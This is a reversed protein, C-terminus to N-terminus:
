ISTMQKIIKSYLSIVEKSEVDRPTPTDPLGDLDIIQAPSGSMIKISDGLCIAEMPDHTVLFVTCDKLLKVALNRLKFRTLVDLASFPEDMLIIPKSEMMTRALAVRQRMGGSMQSPKLLISDELEVLKLLETAKKIDSPTKKGRLKCGLLVNELASNWPMLLDDQAMYSVRGTIPINDSTKIDGYCEEPPSEIDRDKSFLGAIMKLLTSKGVGSTGLLCTWQGSPLSLSLNDFIKKNKYYMHAQLISIDPVNMKDNM